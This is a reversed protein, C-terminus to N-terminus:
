EKSEELSMPMLVATFEQETDENTTTLKIGGDDNFELIMRKDVENQFKDALQCIEMLYRPNVGIRHKFKGQPIVEKYNPYKGEIPNVDIISASELNTSAIRVRSNQEIVANKLLPIYKKGRPIQSAVKLAEKAPMIFSHNEKVTFNPIKPFEEPNFAKPRTVEILRRGDNVVTCGKNVLIGSEGYKSKEAIVAIELNSKNLM